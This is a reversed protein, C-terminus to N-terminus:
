YTRADIYVYEPYGPFKVKLVEKKRGTGFM